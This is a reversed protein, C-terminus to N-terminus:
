PDRDRATLMLNLQTEDVWFAVKKFASPFAEPMDPQSQLISLRRPGRPYVYFSIFGPFLNQSVSPQALFPPESKDTYM